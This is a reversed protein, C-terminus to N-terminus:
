HSNLWNIVAGCAQTSENILNMGHLSGPFLLIKKIKVSVGSDTFLKKTEEVHKDELSNIFFIPTAINSLNQDTPNINKYNLGPAIAIVSALTNLEQYQIALNAGISSGIMQVHPNTIKTKVFEDAATLDNFMLNFDLTELNINNKSEGFGRLDITLVNFENKVLELALKEFSSKDSNNQHICIVVRNSNGPYWNGVITLGDSTLFNVKEM